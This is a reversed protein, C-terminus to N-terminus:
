GVRRGPWTERVSPRGPSRRGSALWGLVHAREWLPGARGRTISSPFDPKRSWQHVAQRTVGAMRAIEAGTVLDRAPRELAEVDIIAARVAAPEADRLDEIDDSPAYLLVSEIAERLARRCGPLTSAQAIAGPLSPCCGTWTADDVREFLVGVRM